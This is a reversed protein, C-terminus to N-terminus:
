LDSVLTETVGDNNRIWKCGDSDNEHGCDSCLIYRGEKLGCGVVTDPNLDELEDVNILEGCKPCRKLEM